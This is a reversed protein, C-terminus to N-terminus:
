FNKIFDLSVFTMAHSDFVSEGVSYGSEQKGATASLVAVAKLGLSKGFNLWGM